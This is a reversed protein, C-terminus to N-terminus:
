LRFVTGGSDAEIEPILLGRSPPILQVIASTGSAQAQVGDIPLHEHSSLPCRLLVENIKVWLAAMHPRDESNSREYIGAVEDTLQHLEEWVTASTSAHVLPLRSDETMKQMLHLLKEFDTEVLGSGEFPVAMMGLRVLRCFNLLPGDREAVGLTTYTNTTLEEGNPGGDVSLKWFEVEDGLGLSYFVGALLGVDWHSRFVVTGERGIDDLFQALIANCFRAKLLCVRFGIAREIFMGRFCDTVYVEFYHALSGFDPTRLDVKQSGELALFAIDIVTCCTDFARIMAPTFSDPRLSDLLHVQLSIWLHDCLVLDEMFAIVVDAPHNAVFQPLCNAFARFLEPNRLHDMGFVLAHYNPHDQFVISLRRGGDVADLIELLPIVSFGLEGSEVRRRTKTHIQNFLALSSGSIDARNVQLGSRLIDLTKWCMSLSAPDPDLHDHSIIARALLMLNTFPGDHLLVRWKTDEDFFEKENSVEAPAQQEQWTIIPSFFTFIPLFHSPVKINPLGVRALELCKTLIGQFVLARVCFPRLDMIETPKECLSNLSDVISQLYARLSEDDLNELHEASTRLHLIVQLYEVCTSVRKIRAQESLGTTTVCTLLHEKIRQLIYPATLVGSLEETVTYHSHIYRPLGELFTDMDTDSFFDDTFLRNLAYTDLNHSVNANAREVLYRARTRDFHRKEKRPLAGQGDRCLKRWATRCFFLLRM